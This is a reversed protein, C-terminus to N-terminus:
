YLIDIIRAVSRPETLRVAFNILRVTVPPHRVLRALLEVWRDREEIECEIEAPTLPALRQAFRWAADRAVEINFNMLAEDANRGFRDLVRMWFSVRALQDQVTGTMVGLIDNITNFDKKLSPLQDGPSTLAAAVGLDLNIHANIGLLLHQLVIPPWQEAAKFAVLWSRTPREGRRYQDFAELYRNAFIVDLREMRPGDEFHGALIGEKVKATVARYLVAFYGLRENHQRSHAIIEDLRALVEDITQPTM